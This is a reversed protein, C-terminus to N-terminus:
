SEALQEFYAAPDNSDNEIFVRAWHRFMSVYMEDDLLGNENLSEAHSLEALSGEKQVTNKGVDILVTMVVREEFLVRATVLKKVLDVHPYDTKIGTPRFETYGRM